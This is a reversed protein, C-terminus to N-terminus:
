KIKKPQANKVGKVSRSKTNVVRITLGAQNETARNWKGKLTAMKYKKGIVGKARPIIKVHKSSSILVIQRSKSTYGVYKVGRYTIGDFKAIKKKKNFYVRCITGQTKNGKRKCLKVYNGKRTVYYFAKASTKTTGKGSVDVKIPSNQYVKTQTDVTGTGKIEGNGQEQVVVKAEGANTIEAEVTGTGQETKSGTTVKETRILKGDEDYFYYTIESEGYQTKVEWNANGTIQTFQEWTITGELFRQWWFDIDFQFETHSDIEADPTREPIPAFTFLPEYTAKPEETVVPAVTPAVTPAATPAVTPAVTPEVTPAVTPEVTPAVTPATTPAVTPTTDESPDGGNIIVDFEARTMWRERTRAGDYTEWFYLTNIATKAKVMYGKSNRSSCYKGNSLNRYATIFVNNDLDFVWYEGGLGIIHLLRDESHVVAEDVVSSQSYNDKFIITEGNNVITLVDNTISIKYSKGSGYTGSFSDAVGIENPGDIVGDATAAKAVNETTIGAFSSIVMVVAVLFSFIRRKTRM